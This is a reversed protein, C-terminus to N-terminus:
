VDTINNKANMEMSIKSFLYEFIMRVSNVSNTLLLALRYKPTKRAATEIANIKSVLLQITIAIELTEVITAQM